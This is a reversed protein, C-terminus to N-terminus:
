RDRGEQARRHLALVLRLRGVIAIVLAIVGVGLIIAHATTGSLAPTTATSLGIVGLFEKALLVAKRIRQVGSSPARTRGDMGPLGAEIVAIEPTGPRALLDTM